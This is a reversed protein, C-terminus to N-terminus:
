QTRTRWIWAGVMLGAKELMVTSRSQGDDLKCRTYYHPVEAIKRSRNWRRRKPSTSIAQPQLSAAGGPNDPGGGPDPGADARTTELYQSERAKLLWWPVDRDECTKMGDQDILMVSKRTRVRYSCNSLRQIVLGHGTSSPCQERCNRKIGAADLVQVFDDLMM